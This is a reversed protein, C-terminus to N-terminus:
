RVRGVFSIKGWGISKLEPDFHAQLLRLIPQGQSLWREYTTRERDIMTALADLKGWARRALSLNCFTHVVRLFPTRWPEVMVFRGGPRLVRKIEILTKELDGPIEPLHHLGGQVLVIDLSRDVFGLDRCDGVYLRAPGRYARLLSESLDVGRIRDFGLAALAMLGNGRGCFLEAIESERPWRSAGLSQLRREFKQIEEASSEFRQYAAEWESDCCREGPHWHEITAQTQLLMAMM